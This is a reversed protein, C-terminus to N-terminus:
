NPAYPIIYRKSSASGVIGWGGNVNSHIGIPNTFVDSLSIRYKAM